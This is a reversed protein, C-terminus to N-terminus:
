YEYEFAANPADLELLATGSEEFHYFVRCAPHEHITRLSLLIRWRVSLSLHRICDFCDFFPLPRRHIATDYGMNM